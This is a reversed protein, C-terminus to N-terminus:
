EQIYFVSKLPELALPVKTVPETGTNTVNTELKSRDGTHPNWLALSKNGRLIINTKIPQNTSNVFFYIDKEDKVKHIYTLAGDYQMNMKVPWMPALQINVDRVPLAENLVDTVMTPDPRPLFYSKGGAENRYAFYTKFDDTYARIAAKMPGYEPIGFIDGIIKQVEKDKNFEASYKPLVTTAIVTGGALYFEKIKEATKVSITECGPLLLVRFAERNVKNNIILNRGEIICNDQLVEPHLYTYDIRLGRFLMEGMDMYDNEPTLIGGELAFYFGADVGRSPGGKAPEVGVPQAFKYKAQLAAIPYLVAIDAVHRGGRLLYEMRGIFQGIEPSEGAKPRWGVQQNIGMAHQDMATRWAAEATQWQRQYAAYTEAQIVPRDYNFAASTVVKYSTNSRGTFWIDDITPIQEHKFIKMLDGLTGVPNPAEEQDMHGSLAVGHDECWKALQGIFNETYLETRYGYLVNRAAITDKGIDYWLAPYYKMPSYGYKKQFGENYGPTWLRGSVSNHMSPEDFFTQKIMTGFYEKLNEYYKDYMVDILGAVAKESLYDCVGRRLSTDLYFLMVKWDGQPIKGKFAFGNRSVKDSIDVCELTDLNMMTTGIYLSNKEPMILEVEVPGSVDKEVKELSKQVDDPYAKSFLGGAMGTPFQLEDYLIDMPLDHKLGEEITVKYLRFFEDDLYTAKPGTNAATGRRQMGFGVGSDPTIMYGGYANSDVASKVMAKVADDTLGALQFTFWAHGWYQRPPEKFDEYEVAQSYTGQAATITLLNVSLVCGLLLYLSKNVHNM